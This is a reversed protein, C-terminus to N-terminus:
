VWELCYRPRGQYHLPQNNAPFGMAVLWPARTDWGAEATLRGDRTEVGRERSELLRQRPVPLVLWTGEKPIESHIVHEGVYIHLKGSIPTGWIM